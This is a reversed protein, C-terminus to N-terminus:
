SGPWRAALRTPTSASKLPWARSTAVGKVDEVGMNAVMFALLDATVENGEVSDNDYNDM